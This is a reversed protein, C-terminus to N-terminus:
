SQTLVDVPVGLTITATRTNEQVNEVKADECAEDTFLNDM